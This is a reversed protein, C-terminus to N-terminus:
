STSARAIATDLLRQLDPFTIAPDANFDALGHEYQKGPWLQKISARLEQMAPSRHRFRGTVELSAEKAACYLTFPAAHGQCDRDASRNWDREKALLEKTRQLVRVDEPDAPQRIIGQNLAFLVGGASLLVIVTGAHWARRRFTVVAALPVLLLIAIKAIRGANGEPMADWAQFVPLLLLAAFLGAWYVVRVFIKM